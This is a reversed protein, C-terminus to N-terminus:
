VMFFFRFFIVEMMFFLIIKKIKIREDTGIGDDKNVYELNLLIQLVKSRECQKQGSEFSFGDSKLALHADAPFAVVQFCELGM